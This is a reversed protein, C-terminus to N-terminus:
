GLMASVSLGGHRTAFAVELPRGVRRALRLDHALLCLRAGALRELRHGLTQHLPGLDQGAGVRRGFPPNTALLLPSPASAPDALWPAKTVAACRFEIARLVGARQANQTAALIAGEDRDSAAIPSGPVPGDPAGPLAAVLDQWAQANAFATGEMPAPRLRGPALGLAMAAAEIAITGSGCFPDLLATGRAFGAARLMAFALDERLPAKSGDLRYGRRHLPTASTDLSITAVDDVFRVSIPIPPPGSAAREAAAAAERAAEAEAEAAAKAEAAARMAAYKPDPNKAYPGRGRKAAATLPRRSTRGPAPPLPAPKPKAKQQGM